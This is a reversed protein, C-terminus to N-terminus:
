FEAFLKLWCSGTSRDFYIKTGVLSSSPPIQAADNVSRTSRRSLLNGRGPRESQVDKLTAFREDSRSESIGTETESRLHVLENIWDEVEGRIWGVARGGLSVQHPFQRKARYTYLTSRSLGTRRLVEVLRLITEPTTESREFNM